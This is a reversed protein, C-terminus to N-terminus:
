LDLMETISVELKTLNAVVASSDIVCREGDTARIVFKPRGEELIADVSRGRKITTVFGSSFTIHSWVFEVIDGKDLPIYKQYRM